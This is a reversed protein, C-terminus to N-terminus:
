AATLESKQMQRAAVLIQLALYTMVAMLFAIAFGAANGWGTFALLFFGATLVVLRLMFGGLVHGIANKKEGAKIGKLTTFWSFTMLCLGATLGAGAGRLMSADVGMLAIAGGGVALVMVLGAFVMYPLFSM